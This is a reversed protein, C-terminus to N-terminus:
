NRVLSLLKQIAASSLNSQLRDYLNKDDVIFREAGQNHLTQLLDQDMANKFGVCLKFNSPAEEEWLFNAQAYLYESDELGLFCVTHVSKSTHQELLYDAYVREEHMGEIEQLNCLLDDPLWRDGVKRNSREPITPESILTVEETARSRVYRVVDHIYDRSPLIKRLQDLDNAHMIWAHHPFDWKKEIEKYKSKWANVDEVVLRFLIRNFDNLWSPAEADLMSLANNIHDTGDNTSESSFGLLSAVYFSWYSDSETLKSKDFLEVAMDTNKLLLSALIAGEYAETYQEDFKIAALFGQLANEYDKLYLKANARGCIAWNSEPKLSIATDFKEVAKTYEKVSYYSYGLFTLGVPDQDNMECYKLLDPIANLEDSAFYKSVGLVLYFFPDLTNQDDISERFLNLENIAAQHEGSDHYLYGKILHPYNGSADIDLSKDAWKISEKREDIIWYLRCLEDALDVDDNRQKYVTLYDRISENIHNREAYLLARQEILDIRDPDKELIVEYAALIREFYKQKEDGEDNLSDAFMATTLKLEDALQDHEYIVDAFEMHEQIAAAILSRKSNNGLQDELLLKLIEDRSSLKLFAETVGAGARDSDKLLSFLIEKPVSAGNELLASVANSKVIGSYNEDRTIEQLENFSKTKVLVSIAYSVTENIEMERQFVSYLDDESLSHDNSEFNFDSNIATDNQINSLSNLAIVRADQVRNLEIRLSALCETRINSANSEDLVIRWLYDYQYSDRLFWIGHRSSDNNAKILNEAYDNYPEIYPRSEPIRAISQIAQLRDVKNERLVRSCLASQGVMKEPSCDEFLLEAIRKRTDSTLRVGENILSSTFLLEQEEAEPTNLMMSYLQEELEDKLEVESHIGYTKPNSWVSCILFLLPWEATEVYKKLIAVGEASSPTHKRSLYKALYFDRYSLHGWEYNQGDTIFIGSRSGLVTVMKEADNKIRFENHSILDTLRMCVASHLGDTTPNNQKEYTHHAITELVIDTYVCLESGLDADMGRNGAEDLIVQISMQLLEAKTNPLHSYKLFTKVAATLFLPNRIVESLQNSEVEKSFEITREKLWKAKLNEVQNDELDLLGYSISSIENIEKVPRSAIVIKVKEKNNAFQKLWDLVQRRDRPSVEDFGDFMVLWSCDARDPWEDFFGAPPEKGEIVIDTKRSFANWLKREITSGEANILSPIKIIMPLFRQNSGYLEPESWASSAIHRLSTTKGSGSHGVLLLPEDTENVLYSKIVDALELDSGSVLDEGFKGVRMPIFVSDLSDKTEVIDRYPFLQGYNHLSKCYNQLSLDQEENEIAEQANIVIERIVSINEESFEKEGLTFNEVNDINVVTDGFMLSKEDGGLLLAQKLKKKHIDSVKGQAMELFLNQVENAVVVKTAHIENTAM